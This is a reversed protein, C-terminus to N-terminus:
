RVGWDVLLAVLGGVMCIVAVYAVEVSIGLSTDRWTLRMPERKRM